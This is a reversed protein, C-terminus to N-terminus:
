YTLKVHSVTRQAKVEDETCNLFALCDGFIKESADMRAAADFLFGAHIPRIVRVEFREIPDDKSMRKLWLAPQTGTGSFEIQRSALFDTCPRYIRRWSGAFAAPVYFITIIESLTVRCYFHIPATYGDRSFEYITSNTIDTVPVTKFGGNLKDLKNKGDFDTNYMAAMEPIDFKLFDRIEKLIRQKSNSSGYLVLFFWIGTATFSMKAIDVGLLKIENDHLVYEGIYVLGLSAVVAAALLMSVAIRQGRSLYFYSKTNLSDSM